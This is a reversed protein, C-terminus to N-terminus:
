GAERESVRERQLEGYKPLRDSGSRLCGLCVEQKRFSRPEDQNPSCVRCWESQTTTELAPRWENAIPDTTGIVYVAFWGNRAEPRECLEILKDPALITGVHESRRQKWDRLLHRRDDEDADRYDHRGCSRDDSSHYYPNTRANDTLAFAEDLQKASNVTESLDDEPREDIGAPELMRLSVDWKCRKDPFAAVITRPAAKTAARQYLELRYIGKLGDGLDVEIALEDAAKESLVVVATDIGSAGSSETLWGDRILGNVAKNIVEPRYRKSKPRSL